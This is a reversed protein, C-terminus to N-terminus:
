HSAPWSNHVPAATADPLSVAPRPRSRSHWGATQPEHAPQLPTPAAAPCHHTADTPHWAAATGKPDQPAFPADVETGFDPRGGDCGSPTRGSGEPRASKKKRAHDALVRDAFGTPPGPDAANCSVNAVPLRTPTWAPSRHSTPSEGRVTSTPSSASSSGDRANTPPLLSATSGAISGPGLVTRINNAPRALAYMSSM